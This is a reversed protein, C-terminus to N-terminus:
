KIAKGLELFLKEIGAGTKASVLFCRAGLAQSQERLEADDIQRLQKIDLKNAALFLHMQPELSVLREVYSTLKVLTTRRTLDCVLIAGSCGGLYSEQIHSFPEAGAIDWIALKLSREAMGDIRKTYVKAGITTSYTSSFQHHAFREILSTKGVAFDGVLCVKKQVRVPM